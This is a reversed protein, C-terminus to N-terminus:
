VSLSVSPRCFVVAGGGGGVAKDLNCFFGVNIRNRQRSNSLCPRLKRAACLYPFQQAPALSLDSFHGVAGLIFMPPCWQAFLFM